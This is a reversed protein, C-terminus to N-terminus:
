AELAGLYEKPVMPSTAASYAPWQFTNAISFSIVSYLNALIASDGHFGDRQHLDNGRLGNM